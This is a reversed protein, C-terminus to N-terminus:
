FYRRAPLRRRLVRPATLGHRVSLNPAHDCTKPDDAGDSSIHLLAPVADKGGPATDRMRVRQVGGVAIGIIRCLDLPQLFGVGGKVPSGSKAQPRRPFGQRVCTKRIEAVTLPCADNHAATDAAPATQLAVVAAALVALINEFHRDRCNGILHRADAMRAADHGINGVGARCAGDADGICGVKDPRALRIDHQRAAGVTKGRNRIGAEQGQVRQVFVGAGGEVMGVADRQALTRAYQNHLGILVGDRAARVNVALDEAGADAAIRVVNRRGARVALSLHTGDAARNGLSTQGLRVDVVYVRVAGSGGLVVLRFEKGQVRNKVALVVAQRDTGGLRHGPM